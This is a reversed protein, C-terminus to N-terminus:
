HYPSWRSRCEKGVRREESREDGLEVVHDVNRGSRPNVLVSFYNPGVLDSEDVVAELIKAAEIRGGVEVGQCIPHFFAILAAVYHAFVPEAFFQGHIIGINSQRCSLKPKALMKVFRSMQGLRDRM